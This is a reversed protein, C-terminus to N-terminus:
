ELLLIATSIISHISVIYIYIYFPFFTEKPLVRYNVVVFENHISNFNSLVLNWHASIRACLSGRWIRNEVGSLSFLAVNRCGIIRTARRGPKLNRWGAYVNALVPGSNLAARGKKCIDM